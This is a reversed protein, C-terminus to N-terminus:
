GQREQTQPHANHSKLMMLNDNVEDLKRELPELDIKPRSCVAELLLGIAIQIFACAWLLSGFGILILSGIEQFITEANFFGHLGFVGMVGGFFITVAAMVYIDTAKIM